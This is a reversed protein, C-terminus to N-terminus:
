CVVEPCDAIPMATESLCSGVAGGVGLTAISAGRSHVRPSSVPMLGLYEHLCSLDIACRGTM